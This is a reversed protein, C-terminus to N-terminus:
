QYLKSVFGAIGREPQSLIEEADAIENKVLHKWPSLGYVDDTPSTLVQQSDEDQYYSNYEM